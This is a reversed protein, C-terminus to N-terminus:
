KEVVRKLVFPTSEQSVSGFGGLGGGFGTDFGAGGGEGFGKARPGRSQTRVTLEIEDNSKIKGKYFLTLKTSGQSVPVEFSIKGNKIKGKQIETNSDGKDATRGYLKNGEAKFEFTLTQNGLYMGSWRGDVNVGTAALNQHDMKASCALTVSILLMMLILLLKKM